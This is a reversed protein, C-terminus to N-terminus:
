SDAPASALHSSQSFFLRRSAMSSSFMLCRVQRKLIARRRTLYLHPRPQLSDADAQRALVVIFEQELPPHSGYGGVVITSKTLDPPRVNLFAGLSGKCLIFRSTVGIQHFRVTRVLAFRARLRM